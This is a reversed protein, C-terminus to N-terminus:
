LAGELITVIPKSLIRERDSAAFREPMSAAHFRYAVSEAEAAPSVFGIGGWESSDWYTVGGFPTIANCSHAWGDGRVEHWEVRPGRNTVGEADGSGDITALNGQSDRYQGPAVYYARSTVSVHPVVRAHVDFGDEYFHFRKTYSVGRQLDKVVEIITRVPGDALVSRRRVTGPEESWGTEASSVMIKSVVTRGRLPPSGVMLDRIVGDSVRCSYTRGVIAHARDDYRSSLMSLATKGKERRGQWMVRFRRTEGTPIPSRPVFCLEAGEPLIDVQARCAKRSAGTIEWVRVSAPLADAARVPVVIPERADLSAGAKVELIASHQWRRLDPAISVPLSATNSRECLDGESAEAVIVLTRSGDLRATPVRMSVALTTGAPVPATRRALLREPRPADAYVAVTAMKAARGGRNGLAVRLDLPQGQAVSRRALRTSGAHVVLDPRALATGLLIEYQGASLHLSRSSSAGSYVLAERDGDRDRRYVAVRPVGGSSALRVADALSVSASGPARVVLRITDRQHLWAAVVTEGEERYAYDPREVSTVIRGGVVCRFQRLGPGIVAFGNKPLVHPKGGLTVRQELDGFNVISTTGNAFRTRQLSRDPTLYAHELLECEATVAHVQTATHATRLFAGRDAHWAGDRTAWLMPMTGYLVNYADKKPSLEPAARLLFDNSDGWYWTSVVCDHFVLQWLPARYEHGIGWLEYNEWTDTGYPGEFKQQRDKPRILHGAPWAFQYSSMMGEIYSLHPVGWWIGHEGGVVLGLKSVEALLREGCRRKDSRTLPHSADYCEYLGEATTVDIFRGPFPLRRLVDTIVARARTEWLSPCRKMYQTKKDYTLWAAMRTGDANLVAADPLHDHSSDPEKGAEVPLIDTYNDYESTLYGLANIARMDDASSQGHILMRRVGSERAERAFSASADGWVDVAGYLRRVNPNKSAKQALTRLLGTRRAYARYAKALAVYGGRDAFHYLARRPYTFGKKSPLWGIRPARAPGGAITVRQMDVCADDSTEIIAAYGPGTLTDAVGFWPMDLRDAAMWTKPFPDYTLPYLHGDCYDAIAMYAERTRPLFPDLSLAGGFPASRDSVDTEVTLEPRDNSLRLTVRLEAGGALTVLQVSNGTSRIDRFPHRDQRGSPSPQAWTISARKDTVTISGTDATVTVKLFTSELIADAASVTTGPQASAQACLIASIWASQWLTAAFLRM